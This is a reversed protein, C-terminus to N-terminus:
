WVESALWTYSCFLVLLFILSAAWCKWFFILDHFATTSLLFFVGAESINIDVWFSSCTDDLSFKTSHRCLTTLYCHSICTSQLYPAILQPKSHGTCLQICTLCPDHTISPLSLPRFCSSVIILRFYKICYM